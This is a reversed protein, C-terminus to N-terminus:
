LTRSFSSYSLAFPQIFWEEFLPNVSCQCLFIQFHYSTVPLAWPMSFVFKLYSLCKRSLLRKLVAHVINSLLCHLCKSHLTNLVKYQQFHSWIFSYWLCLLCFLFRTRLVNRALVGLYWICTDYVNCRRTTLTSVDIPRGPSFFSCESADDTRTPCTRPWETWGAAVLRRLRQRIRQRATPNFGNRVLFM